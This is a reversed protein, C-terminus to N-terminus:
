AWLMVHHGADHQHQVGVVPTLILDTGGQGDPVAHLFAKAQQNVSYFSTEQDGYTVTVVHGAERVDTLKTNVFDIVDGASFNEISKLGSPMDVQLTSDSGSFRVEEATGGSLVHEIGGSYITTGRSLGGSQINEVGGSEIETYVSRGYVNEIGGNGVIDAHSRGGNLVNETGGDIQSYDSQGGSNVNLIDGSHLILGSRNPPTNYTTM